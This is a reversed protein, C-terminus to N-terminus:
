RRRRWIVLALSGLSVLALTSPEPVLVEDFTLNDIAFSGPDGSNIKLFFFYDGSM